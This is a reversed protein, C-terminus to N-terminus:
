LVHGSVYEADALNLATMPDRLFSRNKKNRDHSYMESLFSKAVKYTFYYKRIM